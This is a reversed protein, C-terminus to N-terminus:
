AGLWALAAFRQRRRWLLACAVAVVAASVLVSGPYNFTDLLKQWWTVGLPFPRWLGATSVLGSAGGRPDLAPMVHDLGWEDLRTLVGGLVLGTLAALAAAAGAIARGM